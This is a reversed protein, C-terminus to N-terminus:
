AEPFTAAPLVELRRREAEILPYRFGARYVLRAVAAECDIEITDIHPVLNRRVEGVRVAYQVPPAPLSFSLVGERRRMGFVAIRTHEKMSPFTTRPASLASVRGLRDLNVRASGDASKGDFLSQARLSGFLPYPAFCVPEPQDDIATVLQNPHELQPLPRGPAESASLAYGTGVPNPPYHREYEPVIHIEGENSLERAPSTASGGFAKSWAMEVRDFPLPQSPKVSAAGAREWVRPGFVAIEARAGGVILSTTSRADGAHAPYAFGTACVSVCDRLHQADNSFPANAGLLLPRQQAALRVPATRDADRPAQEELAITMSTLVLQLVEDDDFTSPVLASPLPTENILEM